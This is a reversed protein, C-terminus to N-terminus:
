EPLAFSFIMNGASIAVYQRGDLAYSVPSANLDGGTQVHCAATSRNARAPRSSNSHIIADPSTNRDSAM